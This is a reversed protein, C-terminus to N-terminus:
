SNWLYELLSLKISQNNDGNDHTIEVLVEENQKTFIGINNPKFGQSKFYDALLKKIESLAIASRFEMTIVTPKNGDAASYFYVVDTAGQVPQEKLIAPTLLLYDISYQSYRRNESLSASFYYVGLVIMLVLLPYVSKRVLSSM